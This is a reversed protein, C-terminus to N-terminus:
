ASVGARLSAARRLLEEYVESGNHWEETGPVWDAAAELEDAIAADIYAVLREVFEVRGLPGTPAILGNASAQRLLKVLGQRREDSM